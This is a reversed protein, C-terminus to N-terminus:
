NTWWVEVTLQRFALFPKAKMACDLPPSPVVEISCFTEFWNQVLKCYTGLLLLFLTLHDLSVLELGSAAPFEWSLFAHVWESSTRISRSCAGQDHCVLLDACSAFLPIRFFCVVVGQVCILHHLTKSLTVLVGCSQIIQLVIALVKQKIHVDWSPLSFLWSYVQEVSELSFDM